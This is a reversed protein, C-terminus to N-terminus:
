EATNNLRLTLNLSVEGDKKPCGTLNEYENTMELKLFLRTDNWINNKYRWSVINAESITKMDNEFIFRCRFPCKFWYNHWFGQSERKWVSIDQLRLCEFSSDKRNCSVVRVILSKAEWMEPKKGSLGWHDNFLFQVIQKYDVCYTEGNHIYAFYLKINHKM